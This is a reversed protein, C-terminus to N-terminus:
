SLVTVLRTSTGSSTHSRLGTLVQLNAVLYHDTNLSIIVIISGDDIDEFDITLSWTGSWTRTNHRVPASDPVVAVDPQLLPQATAVRLQGVDQGQDGPEEGGEDDVQEM